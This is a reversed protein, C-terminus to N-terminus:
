ESHWSITCPLRIFRNPRPWKARWVVVIIRRHEAILIEVENGHGIANMRRIEEFEAAKSKQM